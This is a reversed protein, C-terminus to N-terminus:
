DYAPQMCGWGLGCGEGLVGNAYAFVFGLKTLIGLALGSSNAM